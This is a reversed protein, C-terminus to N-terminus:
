PAPTAHQTRLTITVQAGRGPRNLLQVNGESTGVIQHVLALGFGSGDRKSTVRAAGAAALVEAPFGPGDDWVSIAAQEGSVSSVEVVVKSAVDAGTGEYANAVLNLLIRSLGETGGAVRLRPLSSSMRLELHRAGAEADLERRVRNMAAGLDASALQDLRVLEEYSREKIEVVRRNIQQLSRRVSHVFARARPRSEDRSGADLERDALDANLAASALQSRLDHHERLLLALNRQSRDADIAARASWAVLSRTWHALLGGLAGAGVLYLSYLVLAHWEGEGWRAARDLWMLLSFSCANLLWSCATAWLSLRFASAVIVLLIVAMDAKDLLPVDVIQPWLAMPLITLFCAVADLAVSLLFFGQTARLRDGRVVVYSSFLAAAVLPPVGTWMRAATHETVMLSRALIAACFVGRVISLTRESRRAAVLIVDTVVQRADHKAARAPETMRRSPLM